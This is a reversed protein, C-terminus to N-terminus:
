NDGSVGVCCLNIQKRDVEICGDIRVFVDAFGELAGDTWIFGESDLYWNNRRTDIFPFKEEITDFLGCFLVRATMENIIVLNLKM